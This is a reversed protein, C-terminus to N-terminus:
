ADAAMEVLPKIVLLGLTLAQLGFLVVYGLAVSARALPRPRGRPSRRNRKPPAHPAFARVPSHPRPTRGQRPGRDPFAGRSAAPASSAAARSVGRVFAGADDGSASRARARSMPPKAVHGAPAQLSVKRKKRGAAGPGLHPAQTRRRHRPSPTEAVRHSRGVGDVRLFRRRGRRWRRSSSLFSSFCLSASFRVVDSEYRRELKAILANPNILQQMDPAWKM